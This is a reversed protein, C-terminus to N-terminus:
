KLLWNEISVGPPHKLLPTVEIIISLLLTVLPVERAKVLTWWPTCVVEVWICLRSLPNICEGVQRPVNRLGTMATWLLWKIIGIPVLYWSLIGFKIRLAEVELVAINMLGTFVILVPPLRPISWEPLLVLTLCTKNVRDVLIFSKVAVTTVLQLTKTLSRITKVPVPNVQPTPVICGCRALLLRAISCWVWRGSTLGLPIIGTLMLSFLVKLARIIALGPALLPAIASPARFSSARTATYLRNGGIFLLSRIDTQLRISILTLLLRDTLRDRDAKEVRTAPIICTNFKVFLLARISNLLSFVLALGMLFVVSVTVTRLCSCRRFVRTLVAARQVLSPFQM